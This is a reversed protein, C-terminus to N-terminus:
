LYTAIMVVLTIFCWLCLILNEICSIAYKILLEEVGVLLIAITELWCIKQSMDLM